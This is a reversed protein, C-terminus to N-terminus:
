QAISRRLVPEEGKPPAPRGEIWVRDTAGDGTMPLSFCIGTAEVGPLQELSFLTQQFYSVREAPEKYGTAPLRLSM